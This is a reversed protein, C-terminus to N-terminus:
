ILIESISLVLILLYFCGFGCYIAIGGGCFTIATNIINTNKINTNIINFIWYCHTTIKVERIDFSYIDDKSTYLFVKDGHVKIDIVDPVIGIKKSTKKSYVFTKVTM